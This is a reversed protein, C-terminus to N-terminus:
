RQMTRALDAITSPSLDGSAHTGPPLAGGGHHFDFLHGTEHWKQGAGFGMNAGFEALVGIGFNIVHESARKGFLDFVGSLILAGGAVPSVPIGALHVAGENGGYRGNIMGMVAAGAFAEGARVATAVHHDRNQKFAEYKRRLFSRDNDLHKIMEVARPSIDPDM